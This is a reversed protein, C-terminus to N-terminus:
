DDDSTDLRGATADGGSSRGAQGSRRLIEHFERLTSEVSQFLSNEPFEGSEDRTGSPLGTLREM